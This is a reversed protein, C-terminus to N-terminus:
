YYQEVVVEEGTSEDRFRFRRLDGESKGKGLYTCPKGNKGIPWESEQVWRPAM